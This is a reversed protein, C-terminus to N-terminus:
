APKLKMAQRRRLSECWTLMPGTMATTILAMLVLMAFIRPSLIKLDYGINLAILEVLGRTNMLAGLGFADLWRMGTLRATLMTGGLKGVTAILVLGLAIAVDGGDQLLGIQLRLGTFAFFLPLLFVSSFHELRVGLFERLAPRAPMILGALFAGFLAHVGMVDTALASIFVVALVAAMTGKGPQEPRVETKALWGTLRPKVLCWLLGVFLILLVVNLGASGLSKAKAVAVVGALICWATVDNMAACILATVGLPSHTMQREELIRALVPFATISMSVGIFLAFAVFSTGNQAFRTYLFFATIVGLLYPVLISAQSVAMATKAQQKLQTLNLEMGVVFMFLCVGIQSFLRLSGLSSAPFIFHFFDPWVWGLLSPGLLIGAVMEGVVAPQGLGAAVRGCIRALLIILILQMFLQTLPDHLNEQLNEWLSASPGV